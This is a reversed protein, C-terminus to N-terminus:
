DLGVTEDHNSSRKSWNAGGGISDGRTTAVAICDGVETSAMNKVIEIRREGVVVRDERRGGTVVAGVLDYTSRNQKMHLFRELLMYLLPVEQCVWRSATLSDEGELGLGSRLTFRGEVATSSEKANVRGHTGFLSM